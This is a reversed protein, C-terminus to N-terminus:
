NWSERQSIPRNCFALRRLFNGQRNLSYFRHFPHFLLSFSTSKEERKFDIQVKASSRFRRVHARSQCREDHIILGLYPTRYRSWVSSGRRFFLLTRLPLSGFFFIRTSILLLKRDFHGAAASTFKDSLTSLCVRKPYAYTSAFVLLLLVYTRECESACAM